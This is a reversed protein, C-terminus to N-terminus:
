IIISLILHLVGRYYCVFGWVRLLFMNPGVKVRDRACGITAWIILAM